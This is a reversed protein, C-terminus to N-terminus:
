RNKCIQLMFKRSSNWIFCIWTRNRKKWKDTTERLHKMVKVAFEHGEKTTHSVGKMLKTVEYVGIYGLSLTSYGNKLLKDIKEGSKLRAIAGYKWHIPSTDSLTGLLAYHRCMLAEYCLELREDFLKWSSIKM